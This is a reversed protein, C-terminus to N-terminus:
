SLVGTISASCSKACSVTVHLTLRGHRFIALQRALRQEAHCLLAADRHQARVKNRATLSNACCGSAQVLGSRCHQLPQWSTDRCPRSRPPLRWTGCPFSLCSATCCDLTQQLLRCPRCGGVVLFGWGESNDVGSLTRCFQLTGCCAPVNSALCAQWERVQMVLDAGWLDPFSLSPATSRFDKDGGAIHLCAATAVAAM